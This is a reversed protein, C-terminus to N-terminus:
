KRKTKRGSGSTRGGRGSAPSAAVKADGNDLVYVTGDAAEPNKALQKKTNLFFNLDRLQDKLGELEARKEQLKAEWSQEAKMEAQAMRESLQSQSDILKQNLASLIDRKRQVEKLQSQLEDDKKTLEELQLSALDLDVELSNVKRQREEIRSDLMHAEKKDDNEMVLLQGRMHDSQQKLQSTLLYVYETHLEELKLSSHHELTPYANESSEVQNSPTDTLPVLKGDTKNQLVRHVYNEGVYDWVKQTEVDLSFAHSTQEFHALAHMNNYRGCGAHGCILCIWIDETLGCEDCSSLATPTISYRCIPCSADTWKSLCRFHFKHTCLVSIVGNQDVEFRELCIPCSEKSDEFVVFPFSNVSQKCSTSSTPEYSVSAMRRIWCRYGELPNFPKENTREIFESAAEASKFRIMLAYVSSAASTIRPEVDHHSENIAAGSPNRDGFRPSSAGSGNAKPQIVQVHTIRDLFSNGAFSCFESISIHSPIDVVCVLETMLHVNEIAFEIEGAVSFMSPNGYCFPARSVDRFVRIDEEESLVPDQDSLLRGSPVSILHSLAIEASVMSANKEEM